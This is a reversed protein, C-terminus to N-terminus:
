EGSESDAMLVMPVSKRLETARSESGCEIIRWKRYAGDSCGPFNEMFRITRSGGGREMILWCEDPGSPPPYSLTSQALFWLQLKPGSIRLDMVTSEHVKGGQNNSIYEIDSQIALGFIPSALSSM